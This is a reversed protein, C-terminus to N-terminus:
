NDFFSYLPNKFFSFFFTKIASRMNESIMGILEASKAM